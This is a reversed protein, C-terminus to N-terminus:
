SLFPPIECTVGDEVRPSGIFLVFASRTTTKKHDADHFHDVDIGACLGGIHVPHDARGVHEVIKYTTASIGTIIATAAAVGIGGDDLCLSFFGFRM